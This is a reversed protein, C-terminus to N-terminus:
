PIITPEENQVFCLQKIAKPLEKIKDFYNKNHM